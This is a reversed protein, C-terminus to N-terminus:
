GRVTRGAGLLGDCVEVLRDFNCCEGSYRRAAREMEGTQERLGDTESRVAVNYMQSQLARDPKNAFPM